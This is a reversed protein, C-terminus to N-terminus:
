ERTWKLKVSYNAELGAKAVVFSGGLEGSAKLGFTVEIEDPSDTLSKLKTLITNAADRVSDVATDFTRDVRQVVKAAQGDGRSVPELGGMAGGGNTTRTSAEEVEILVTGGSELPFEIYDPMAVEMKVPTFSKAFHYCRPPRNVLRSYALNDSCPYKSLRM